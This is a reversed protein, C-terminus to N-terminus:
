WKVLQPHSAQKVELTDLLNEATTRPLQRDCCSGTMNPQLVIPCEDSLKNATTTTIFKNKECPLIM